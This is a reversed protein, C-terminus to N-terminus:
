WDKYAVGNLGLGGAGSQVDVVVLRPDSFPDEVSEPFLMYEPAWTDPEHTFPDPPLENIYGKNVLDELRGPFHGEGRAYRKIAIRLLWLQEKLMAEKAKRNLISSAVPVKVSSSTACSIMESGSM